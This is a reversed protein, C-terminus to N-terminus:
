SDQELIERTIEAAIHVFEPCHEFAGPQKALLQGEESSLDFGILERCYLSGTRTKFEENLARVKEYLRYKATKATPKDSAFKLGLVMAAGTLAGCLGGMHGFGGGFGGALKIALSRDLNFQGAWAALIAQSCSFGEEFLQVAEETPNKM